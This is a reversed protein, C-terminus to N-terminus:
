KDEKYDEPNDIQEGWMRIQESINLPITNNQMLLKPNYIPLFELFKKKAEMDVFENEKEDEKSKMEYMEKKCNTNLFEIIQECSIGENRAKRVSEKSIKYVVMNPFAYDEVCFFVLKGYCLAKSFKRCLITKIFDSSTYAFIRYNTEM